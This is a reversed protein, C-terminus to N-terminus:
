KCGNQWWANFTQIMEMTWMPHKPDPNEQTFPPMQKPMKGTSVQEFIAKASAAVDAQKSLDFTAKMCQVDGPLFYNKIVTEWTATTPPPPPPKEGEPCGQLMWARFHAIQTDTWMPHAPDPKEQTWPPMQLPMRKHSTADLIAASHLAVDLYSGMDYGYEKKMCVIDSGLFYDKIEGYWTVNLTPVIPNLVDDTFPKTTRFIKLSTTAVFPFAPDAIISSISASSSSKNPDANRLQTWERDFPYGMGRPDPYKRDAQM